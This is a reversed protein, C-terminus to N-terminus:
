RWGCAPGSLSPITIVRSVGIAASRTAHEDYSRLCTAADITSRIGRFRLTEVM